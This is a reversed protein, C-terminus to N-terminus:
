NSLDLFRRTKRHIKGLYVPLREPKQYPKGRIQQYEESFGMLATPLDKANTAVGGHFQHFTGEGLLLIAELEKNEMLRLHLDLNVMGGGRCRFRVDFCGMAQLVNKNVAFCNSEAMPNLYGDRSSQAPCSIDFLQYGDSQWSISNLLADEVKQCYGDELMAVYQLKKGLHLAFTYIYANPHAAFGRLMGSLVNPSLMRAGDIICAVNASRALEIGVNMAECPTPWTAEIAHYQFNDQLSIVWGADLPESSGSDVVIVEYDDKDIGQQYQTTLTFLTRKAERRMNYFVVVVSLLPRRFRFM